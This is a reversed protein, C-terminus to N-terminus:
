IVKGLSGGTPSAPINSKGTSLLIYGSLATRSRPSSLLPLVSRLQSRVSYVWLRGSSGLFIKGGTLKHGRFISRNSGRSSQQIKLTLIIYMPYYFLIKWLVLCDHCHYKWPCFGSWTLRRKSWIPQFVAKIWWTPIIRKETLIEGALFSLGLHCSWGLRQCSPLTPGAGTHILIVQSQLFLAVATRCGTKKLSSVDRTGIATNRLYASKPKGRSSPFFCICSLYQPLMHSKDTSGIQFSHCDSFPFLAQSKLVTPLVSVTESMFGNIQKLTVVCGRPTHWTGPHADPYGSTYSVCGAQLTWGGYVFGEDLVPNRLVLVVSMQPQIMKQPSPQGTCQLTKLPMQLSYRRSAVLM